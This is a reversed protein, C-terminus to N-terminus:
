GSRDAAERLVGPCRGLVELDVDELSGALVRAGALGVGAAALAGGAGRL